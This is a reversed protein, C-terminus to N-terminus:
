GSYNGAQINKRLHSLDGFYDQIVDQQADMAKKKQPTVPGATVFDQLIHKAIPPFFRDPHDLIPWLFNMFRNFERLLQVYSYGRVDDKETVGLILHLFDLAQQNIQKGAPHAQASRQLEPHMMIIRMIGHLSNGDKIEMHGYDRMMGRSDFVNIQINDPPIGDLLQRLKAQVLGVSGLSQLYKLPIFNHLEREGYVINQQEESFHRKILSQVEPRGYVYEESFIAGGLLILEAVDDDTQLLKPLIANGFQEIDEPQIIEREIARNLWSRLFANSFDEFKGIQGMLTTQWTEATLPYFIDIKEVEVDGHLIAEQELGYPRRYHPNHEHENGDEYTKVIVQDPTPRLTLLAGGHLGASGRKLAARLESMMTMEDYSKVYMSFSAAEGRDGSSSALRLEVSGGEDRIKELQALEEESDIRIGRWVTGVPVNGYLNRAQEIESDSWFLHQENRIWNCIDQELGDYRECAEPDIVELLKM